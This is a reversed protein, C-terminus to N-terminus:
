EGERLRGVAFSLAQAVARESHGISAFASTADEGLFQTLLESGGPHVSLFSTVDLVRRGVVLLAVSGAGCERVEARTFHRAPAASPQAAGGNSGSSM